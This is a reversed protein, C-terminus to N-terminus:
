TLIYHSLVQVIYYEYQLIYKHKYNKVWKMYKLIYHFDSINNFTM